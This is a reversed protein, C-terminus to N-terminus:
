EDSESAEQEASAALRAAEAAVARREQAVEVRRRVGDFMLVALVLVGQLVKVLSSDLQLSSEVRQAGTNLFAFVFAIFPVLLPRISALLVVLLALFGIGGSANQQLQGIPPHLVLVAGGLGAMAGCLAMAIWMNRETPIGLARASAPSRGIAKLQLGYRTFFLIGAAVSFALVTFAVALDSIFAREVARAPLLAFAEFAATRSGTGGQEPAWPGAILFSSFLAAIFNLAVGGFIENVGGRTKLIATLLAWAAGASMALLLEVAIQGTRGSMEVFLAGLSAGVAGMTLQGEIGINWLGATFTLLLGSSCLLLPLLNRVVRARRGSSDWAGDYLAEWVDGFSADELSLAIIIIILAVIVGGLLPLLMVATKQLGTSTM